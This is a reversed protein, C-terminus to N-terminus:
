FSNVFDLLLQYHTGGHWHPQLYKKNYWWQESELHCGILGIRGQIIAMPNGNSYTAVVNMSDGAFACGDYFYMREDKGLWQVSMAKPHPRRTDTNPQKIYQVVRVNDLINLYDRDAWYAGMCIGLFKGGSKLFKRVPDANWKMLTDYRDSDGFGGPFCVCDVDNFFSPEVEDRSFLKFSHQPSLAKIIGNASDVACIPQHIFLAIKM